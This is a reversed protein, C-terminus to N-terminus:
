FNEYNIEKRYIRQHNTEEASSNEQREYVSLRYVTM